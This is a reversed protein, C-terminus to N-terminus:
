INDLYWRDGSDSYGTTGSRKQETGAYSHIKSVPYAINKYMTELTWSLKSNNWAEMHEMVHEITYMKKEIEDSMSKLPRAFRVYATEWTEKPIWSLEAYKEFIKERYERKRTRSEADSEPDEIGGVANEADPQSINSKFPKEETALRMNTGTAYIDINGNLTIVGYMSLVKAALASAESDEYGSLLSAFVDLEITRINANSLAKAVHLMRTAMVNMDSDGSKSFIRLFGESTESYIPELRITVWEESIQVNSFPSFYARKATKGSGQEVELRVKALAKITDRFERLWGCLNKGESTSITITSISSQKKSTKKSIAWLLRYARLFKASGHSITVSFNGFKIKRDQKTGWWLPIVALIEQM